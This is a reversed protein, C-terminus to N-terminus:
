MPKTTVIQQVRQQTIDFRRGLARQSWGQGHLRIIEANREPQAHGPLRKEPSVADLQRLEEQHRALVSAITSPWWRSARRTTPVSAATLEDAIAQFTLGRARASLIRDTVEETVRYANLRGTRAM